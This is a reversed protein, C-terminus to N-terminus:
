ILHNSLIDVTDMMTKVGLKVSKAEDAIEELPPNVLLSASVVADLKAIIAEHEAHDWNDSAVLAAYNARLSEIEGRLGLEGTQSLEHIHDTNIEPAMMTGERAAEPVAGIRKPSFGDDVTPDVDELEKFKDRNYGKKTQYAATAVRALGLEAMAKLRLARYERVEDEHQKEELQEIKKVGEVNEALAEQIRAHQLELQEMELDDLVDSESCRVLRREIGAWLEKLNAALWEGTSMQERRILYPVHKMKREAKQESTWNVALQKFEATRGYKRTIQDVWSQIEANRKGHNIVQNRYATGIIALFINVLSLYMLLIFFTFYVVSITPHLDLMDWYRTQGAIMQIMTTLASFVGAFRKLHFGYLCMGSFAFMGCLILFMIMFYLVYVMASRLTLWVSNVNGQIQAYKLLKLATIFCNVAMVGTTTVSYAAVGQIDHYKGTSAVVDYDAVQSSLNWRIRFGISVYFLILNLADMLEFFSSTFSNAGGFGDLGLQEPTPKFYEKFEEWNIWKYPSKYLAWIFITQYTPSGNFVPKEIFKEVEKAQILNDFYEQRSVFGNDDGDNTKESLEKFLEKFVFKHKKPLHPITQQFFKTLYHFGEDYVRNVTTGTFFIIFLLLLLELMLIGIQNDDHRYMDFVRVWTTIYVSGLASQEYLLQVTTWLGEAANFTSYEIIVARTGSNIFMTDELRDVIQTAFVKYSNAMAVIYGGPPYEEGTHPSTITMYDEFSQPDFRSLDSFSSYVWRSTESDSSRGDGVTYFYDSTQRHDEDSYKPYCTFNSSSASTDFDPISQLDWEEPCDEPTVRLQRVKVGGMLFNYKAFFQSCGEDGGVPAPNCMEKQMNCDSKAQGTSATSNAQDSSLGYCTSGWLSQVLPGRMWEYFETSTRVDHMKLMVLGNSGALARNALNVQTADTAMLFAMNPQLAIYIVFVIVFTGYFFLDLLITRYVHYRHIWTACEKEKELVVDSQLKLLEKTKKKRAEKADPANPYYDDNLIERKDEGHAGQAFAPVQMTRGNPGEQGVGEEPIATQARKDPELRTKRAEPTELPDLDAQSYLYRWLEDQHRFSGTARLEAWKNDDPYGGKTVYGLRKFRLILEINDEAYKVKEARWEDISRHKEQGHTEFVLSGGAAKFPAEDM